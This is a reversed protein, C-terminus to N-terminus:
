DFGIGNDIIKLIIHTATQTLLVHLETANAYKAANNLAEQAIRYLNTEVDPAVDTIDELSLQIKLGSRAEVSDLRAKLAATLGERELVPPRLEFILLRTEQLTQRADEQIGTLYAQVADSQGAALKRSAAEAQLTLGYLTQAVSDHLDRALRTRENAVALEEAQDAYVQLQTHTHKLEALLQESQRRAEDAQLLMRVFVAVFILAAVYLLIFSLAEPMSFQIVQGVATVGMLIGLWTLGARRPLLYVVQGCIPIYLMAFFDLEFHFLSALFVLSTQLALYLNARQGSNRTLLPEIGLLFAYLVLIGVIVEIFPINQQSFVTLWRLSVAGWFCYSILLFPLAGPRRLWMQKM